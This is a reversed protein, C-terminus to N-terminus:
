CLLDALSKLDPVVLDPQAEAFPTAGSGMKEARRNIWVTDFGLRKAPVHDHFLSQAVHLIREKPLGSRRLIAEFHGYAPKYSYVQQATVIYDFQVGLRRNSRAFLDDDINSLIALKYVRKLEQLAAATDPFAEWDGVSESFRELEGQTPTFGYRDGYGKLCEMLVQRYPMYAGREAVSEFEAYDELCHEDSIEVGNKSLVPKLAALIGSEWDILTGYCDFTLLEKDKPNFM